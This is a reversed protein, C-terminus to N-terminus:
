AKNAQQKERQISDYNKWYDWCLFLAFPLGMLFFWAAQELANLFDYKVQNDPRHLLVRETPDKPNILDEPNYLALLSAGLFCIPIFQFVLFLLLVGRAKRKYQQQSISVM